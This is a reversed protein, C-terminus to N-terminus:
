VCYLDYRTGLDRYFYLASSDLCFNINGIAYDTRDQDM